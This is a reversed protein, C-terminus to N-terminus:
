PGCHAKLLELREALPAAPIPVCEYGFRRYADAHVAEFRLSDEFSIRRAATPAVFGLNEVFLVRREYVGERQTREIEAALAASPEYGLFVALAWTCVPSRDYFQVAGKAAVQRDRQMEVIADIFAPSTWPAEVGNAQERAIVDTAAEEVVCHGEAALLRILATKGAGPAGTLIHRRV